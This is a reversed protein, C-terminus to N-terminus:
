LARSPVSTHFSLSLGTNDIDIGFSRMARRFVQRQNTAAKWDGSGAFILPKYKEDGRSLLLSYHTSKTRFYMATIGHSTACKVYNNLHKVVAHRNNM